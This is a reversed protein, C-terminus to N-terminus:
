RPRLGSPKEEAQIVPRSAPGHDGPAGAPTPVVTVTAGVAELRRVYESVQDPLVHRYGDGTPPEVKVVEAGLDALLVGCLPGAVYQAYEVVRVGDLPLTM